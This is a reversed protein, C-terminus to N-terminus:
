ADNIEEESWLSEKVWEGKEDKLALFFVPGSSWPSEQVEEYYIRGDPFIHKFLPYDHSEDDERMYSFMGDYGGNQEIKVNSGLIPREFPEEKGDPYIRTGKETYQLVQEGAVFTEAWGNLGMHQDCRM